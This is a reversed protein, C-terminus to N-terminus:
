CDRVRLTVCDVFLGASGSLVLTATIKYDAGDDGAQVPVSWTLGNGGIVLNQPDLGLIAVSVNAGNRDEAIATGTQLVAGEPLKATTYELGISYTEPAQKTFTPLAVSKRAM